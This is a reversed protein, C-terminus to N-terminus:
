DSISREFNRTYTKQRHNQLAWPETLAKLYSKNPFEQNMSLKQILDSELSVTLKTDTIQMSYYTRCNLKLPLKTKMISQQIIEHKIHQPGPQMQTTVTRLLIKGALASCYCNGFYATSTTSFVIEFDFTVLFFCFIWGTPWSKPQIKLGYVTLYKLIASVIVIVHRGRGNDIIGCFQSLFHIDFDFITM